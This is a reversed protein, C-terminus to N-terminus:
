LRKGSEKEKDIERERFSKREKDTILLLLSVFSSLFVFLFPFPSLDTQPSYLHAHASIRTYISCCSGIHFNARTWIPSAMRSKACSPVVTRYIDRSEFSNERENRMQQSRKRLKCVITHLCRFRIGASKHRHKFFHFLVRHAFKLRARSVLLLM